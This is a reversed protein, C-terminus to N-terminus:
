RKLSRSSESAISTANEDRSKMDAIQTPSSKKTCSTSWRPSRAYPSMSEIQVM